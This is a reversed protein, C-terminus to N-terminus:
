EGGPRHDRASRPDELYVGQAASREAAIKCEFMSRPTRLLACCHRARRLLMLESSYVAVQWYGGGSLHNSVCREPRCNGAVSPTSVVVEEDSVSGVRSSM